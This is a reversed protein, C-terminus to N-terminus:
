LSPAPTCHKLVCLAECCAHVSQVDLLVYRRGHAHSVHLSGSKQYWVPAGGSTGVLRTVRNVVASEIWRCHSVQNGASPLKM